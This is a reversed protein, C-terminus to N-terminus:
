AGAQIHMATSVNVPIRSIGSAIMLEVVKDYSLGNAIECAKPFYSSGKTMGPVLNAEMFYCEGKINTKIDIRGYDRVGLGYFAATALKILNTKTEPANVKKLEESDDKKAQQGLIRLGNSSVLPNIEIPSILLTGDSNQVVSVTFEKGGLYEEVLIPLQFREFLSDVKTEFDIFNTVFSLDDIGNGNAADIPKLFLPFKIPLEQMTKYEGPLATFYDATKIGLSKLHDKALVKNSDFKLIERSSATYNISHKAFYDSLWIDKKNKFSLYKVALVVLDPKRNAINELDNKTTCINLRVSHGLKTMSELISNCSKINGFGSEKLENNPTTVIEINM